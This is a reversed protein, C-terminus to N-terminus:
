REGEGGKTGKPLMCWLLRGKRPASKALEGESSDKPAVEGGGTVGQDPDSEEKETSKRPGGGKEKRFGGGGVRIYGTCAIQGESNSNERNSHLRKGRRLNRAGPHRSNNGMEKNSKNGVAGKERGRM